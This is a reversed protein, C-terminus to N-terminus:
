PFESPLMGRLVCQCSTGCANKYFPRFCYQQSSITSITLLLLGKSARYRFRPSTGKSCYYNNFRLGGHTKERVMTYFLNEM